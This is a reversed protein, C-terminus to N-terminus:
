PTDTQGSRKAHPGCHGAPPQRAIRGPRTSANTYRSFLPRQSGKFKFKFKAAEYLREVTPPSTELHQAFIWEALQEISVTEAATAKAIQETVANSTRPDGSWVSHKSADRDSAPTDEARELGARRAVGAAYRSTRRHATRSEDGLLATPHRDTYVMCWEFVTHKERITFPRVRRGLFRGGRIRLTDPM